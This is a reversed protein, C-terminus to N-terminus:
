KSFTLSDPHVTGTVEAWGAPSKTNRCTVTLGNRGEGRVAGWDIYQSRGGRHNLYHNKERVSYWQSDNSVWENDADNHGTCSLGVYGADNRTIKLKLGNAQITDQAAAATAVLMAFVLFTDRRSFM